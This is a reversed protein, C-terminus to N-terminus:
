EHPVVGTATGFQKFDSYAARTTARGPTPTITVHVPGVYQEEMTAPLWLDLGPHHRYTVDLDAASDIPQWSLDPVAAPRAGQPRSPDMTPRGAPASQVPSRMTDAFNRMRMRTRVVTGDDPNVWLTGDLPVDKGARTMVFTPSRTEKFRIEWTQVGEIKKTGTKEFAFRPLHDPLFFFLTTTPVNFNRAVPGVNFRASENAIRVAESTDASGSTFLTVLRDRRDGLPKGDVEVVDRYGVWGASDAVRVIAFEATLRRPPVPSAAADLMVSQTYKEVAVILSAKRGYSAVYAGVRALVPALAPDPPAQASLPSLGTVLVVGAIARRMMRVEAGTM